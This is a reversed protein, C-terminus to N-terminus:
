DRRRRTSAAEACLEASQAKARTIIIREGFLPLHEFWDLKPRLSVVDGIVITAPPALARDAKAVRGIHGFDHASRSAHGLARGDRSHESRPRRCPHARHDRCRSARGHLHRTDGIHRDQDLRDSGCQPRHCVHCRLYARSAHATRRYLRRHRLPATVGPVVEFMLGAEALAEVEEGGRGFIFPDGGKLRVVTKGQGAKAIM